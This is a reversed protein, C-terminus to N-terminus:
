RQFHSHQIYPPYVCGHPFLARVENSNNGYELLYSLYTTSPYAYYLEEAVQATYDSCKKRMLKWSDKKEYGSIGFVIIKTFICEPRKELSIFNQACTYSGNCFM